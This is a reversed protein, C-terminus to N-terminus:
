GQGIGELVLFFILRATLGDRGGPAVQPTTSTGPPSFPAVSCSFRLIHPQRFFRLIHPRGLFRLIHSQGFVRLIYPHGFLYVSIM